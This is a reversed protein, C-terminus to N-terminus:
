NNTNFYLTKPSRWEKIFDVDDIHYLHFGHHETFVVMFDKMIKRFCAGNFEFYSGDGHKVAVVRWRKRIILDKIEITEDMEQALKFAKTRNQVYEHIRDMDIEADVTAVKM